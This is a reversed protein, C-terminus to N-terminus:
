CCLIAVYHLFIEFMILVNPLHGVQHVILNHLVNIIIIM